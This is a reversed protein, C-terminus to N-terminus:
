ETGGEQVHAIQRWTSLDDAHNTEACFIKGNSWVMVILQPDRAQRTHVTFANVVYPASQFVVDAGAHPDNLSNLWAGALMGISLTVAVTIILIRFSRTPTIPTRNM